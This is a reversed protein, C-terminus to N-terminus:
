LVRTVKPTQGRSTFGGLVIGMLEVSNHNQLCIFTYTIVPCFQLPAFPATAWTGVFRFPFGRIKPMKQRFDHNKNKTVMSIVFFTLLMFKPKGGGWM